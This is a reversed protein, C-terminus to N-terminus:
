CLSRLVVCKARGSQTARVTHIARCTVYRGVAQTLAGTTGYRGPYPQLGEWGVHHCSYSRLPPSHPQLAGRVRLGGACYVSVGRVNAKTM